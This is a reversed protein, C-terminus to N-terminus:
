LAYNQKTFEVNKFALNLLEEVLSLSKEAFSLTKSFGAVHTAEFHNFFFHQNLNRHRTLDPCLRGGLFAM